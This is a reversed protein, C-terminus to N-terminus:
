AKLYTRTRHVRAKYVRVQARFIGAVAINCITHGSPCTWGRTGAAHQQHCVACAFAQAAPLFNLGVLQDFNDYVEEEEEEEDDDDEEDDEEEDEQVQAQM